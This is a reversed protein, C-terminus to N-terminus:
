RFSQIAVFYLNKLIAVDSKYLSMCSFYMGFKLNRAHITHTGKTSVCLLKIVVWIELFEYSKSTIINKICNECKARCWSIKLFLGVHKKVM